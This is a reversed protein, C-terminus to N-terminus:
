RRYSGIPSIDIDQDPSLFLSCVPSILGPNRIYTDETKEHALSKIHQLPSVLM